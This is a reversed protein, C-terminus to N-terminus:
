AKPRAYSEIQMVARRVTSYSVGLSSAIAHYTLGTAYLAQLTPITSYLFARMADSCHPRSM